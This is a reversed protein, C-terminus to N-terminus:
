WALAFAGRYPGEGLRAVLTDRLKTGSVGFHILLFYASAAILNLMVRERKAARPNRSSHSSTQRPLLNDGGEDRSRRQHTKQTRSSYRPAGSKGTISTWLTTRSNPLMTGAVHVGGHMTEHAVVVPLLKGLFVFGAPSRRGLQQRAGFTVCAL